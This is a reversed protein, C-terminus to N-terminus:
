AALLAAERGNVYLRAFLGNPANVPERWKGGNQDYVDALNVAAMEKCGFERMTGRFGMKGNVIIFRNGNLMIDDVNFGEQTFSWVDM